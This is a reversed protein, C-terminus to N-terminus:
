VTHAPELRPNNKRTHHGYQMSNKITPACPKTKEIAHVTM